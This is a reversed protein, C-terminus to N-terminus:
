EEFAKISLGGGKKEMVLVTALAARDQSKHKQRGRCSM